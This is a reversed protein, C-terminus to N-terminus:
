RPRLGLHTHQEELVFVTHTSVSLLVALRRGIRVRDVVATFGRLVGERRLRDLRRYANARSIGTASALENISRRGDEALLAVLRRDVSAGM